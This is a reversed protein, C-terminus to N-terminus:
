PEFAGVAGFKIRLGGIGDDIQHIGLALHGIFTTGHAQAIPDTTESRSCFGVLGIALRDDKLAVAMAVLEVIFIALAHLCMAHNHTATGGIIVQYLDYFQGVM